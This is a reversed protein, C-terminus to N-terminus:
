CRSLVEQRVAGRFRQVEAGRCRQIKAVRCRQLMEAGRDRQQRSYRCRQVYGADVCIVVQVFVENQYGCCRWILILVGSRWIQSRCRNVEAAGGCRCWQIVEASPHDTGASQVIM